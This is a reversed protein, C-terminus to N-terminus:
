TKKHEKYTDWSEETVEEQAIRMPDKVDAFITPEVFFGKDGHRKGGILLRAQIHASHM